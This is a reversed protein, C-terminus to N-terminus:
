AITASSVAAASSFSFEGDRYDVRIHGGEAFSGKLLETALPNQIRQQIVRKLPRAGYTPDYGEAAIAARAAPTVHLTLERAALQKELRKIQLDVIHEIQDRGLPSFIITEDIRNLFEPLFRAQLAEKVATRMEEESGGEQAVQQILQSGINSTMVIIANTFD